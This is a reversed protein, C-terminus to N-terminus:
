AKIRNHGSTAQKCSESSDAGPALVIRVRMTPYFGYAGSFLCRDGGASSSDSILTLSADAGAPNRNAERAAEV